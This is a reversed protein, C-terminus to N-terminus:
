VNDSTQLVVPYGGATYVQNWLLVRIGPAVPDKSVTGLAPM